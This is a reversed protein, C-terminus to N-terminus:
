LHPKRRRQRLVEYLLVGAAVSVNLSTINGMLPLSLLYDCRERVLRRVGRDEGGLVLAMPRDFDADWYVADGGAEAGAVWVGAKKLDELANVINVVKVVPVYELAGAAAKAVTETLGVARREPIIVGHVGTAEATRLIAGLNRPDEVGDLVLYLPDQGKQAPLQLIDDIAAYQQAATIAIVGQHLANPAERKLADRAAIRVETGRGKALRIIELIDRDSKRQEAILLRQIPRGAKLAETVPNIGFIKNRKM